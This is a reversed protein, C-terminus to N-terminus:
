YNACAGEAKDMVRYNKKAWSCIMKMSDSGDVNLGNLYWVGDVKQFLLNQEELWTNGTQGDKFYETQLDIYCDTTHCYSQWRGVKTYCLHDTKLGCSIEAEDDASTGIFSVDTSDNLPNALIYMDITNMLSKLTIAVESFRAKRVAKQYQPLAVAALIGIILVVVLLEILTFGQKIRKYNM